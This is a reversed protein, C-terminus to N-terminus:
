LSPPIVQTESVKFNKRSFYVIDRTSRKELLGLYFSLKRSCQNKVGGITHSNYPDFKVIIPFWWLHRGEKKVDNLCSTLNDFRQKPDETTELKKMTQTENGYAKSKTANRGIFESLEKPINRIGELYLLLHDLARLTNNLIINIYNWTISDQNDMNLAGIPSKIGINCPSFTTALIAFM